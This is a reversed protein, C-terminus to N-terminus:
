GTQDEMPLYDAMQTQVELMVEERLVQRVSKTVHRRYMYLCGSLVIVLVITAMVFTRFTINPMYRIIDPHTNLLDRCATPPNAFGAKLSRPFCVFVLFVLCVLGPGPGSWSLCFWTKRTNTGPGFFCVLVLFVHDQGDQDQDQEQREQKKKHKHTKRAGYERNGSIRTLHHRTRLTGVPRNSSFRTRM